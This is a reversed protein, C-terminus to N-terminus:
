SVADSEGHDQLPGIVNFRLLFLTQILRVCTCMYTITPKPYLNM